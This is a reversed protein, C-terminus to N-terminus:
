CTDMKTLWTPKPYLGSLHTTRPIIYTWTDGTQTWTINNFDVRVIGSDLITTTFLAFPIM